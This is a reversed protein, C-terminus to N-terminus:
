QFIRAILEPEFHWLNNRVKSNKSAEMNMNTEHCITLELTSIINQCKIVIDDILLADRPWLPQIYDMFINIFFHRTAVFYVTRVTAQIDSWESWRFGRKWRQSRVNDMAGPNIARPWTPIQATHSSGPLWLQEVHAQQDPGIWMTLM